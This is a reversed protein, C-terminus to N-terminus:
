FFMIHSPILVMNTLKYFWGDIVLQKLKQKKGALTTEYQQDKPLKIKEDVYLSILVVKNTLIEKIESDSWVYEEMKRCNICAQGTFDVFIPKGVEKAYTIGKEYDHFAMIGQPGLHQDSTYINQTKNDQSNINKLGYPSESYYMPPPFGSILKLPAGWMGPIMYVTFVGTIVAVSFRSVSIYKLDSDHAFKLFGLLYLTWLGFIIVWIAIFLERELFHTQLVM